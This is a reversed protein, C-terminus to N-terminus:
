GQGPVGQLEGHSSGQLEADWIENIKKDDWIKLSNKVFNGFPKQKRPINDFGIELGRPVFLYLRGRKVRFISLLIQVFVRM